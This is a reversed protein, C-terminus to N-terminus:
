GNDSRFLIDNSGNGDFDGSGVVHYNTPASGVISPAGVLANNAVQWIAVNGNENRFLIDAQHDGTFDDVAVVHYQPATSGLVKPATSLANNAIAWTAIEGTSVNRFLLDSQGDGTFDGIGSNSGNRHHVEWCRCRSRRPAM